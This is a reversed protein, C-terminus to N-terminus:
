WWWPPPLFGLVADVDLELVGLVGCVGVAMMMWFCGFMREGEMALLGTAGVMLRGGFVAAYRGCVMPEIEDGPCVDAMIAVGVRTM